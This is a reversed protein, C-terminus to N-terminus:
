LPERHCAFDLASGGFLSAWACSNTITLMSGPNYGSKLTIMYPHRLRTAGVDPEKACGKAEGSRTLTNVITRQKRHACSLSPWRVPRSALRSCPPAHCRCGSRDVGHNLKWIM